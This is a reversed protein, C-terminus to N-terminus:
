HRRDENEEEDGEEAGKQKPLDKIWKNKKDIYFYKGEKSVISQGNNFEMAVDYQFPIIVRNDLNVFGWKTNKVAILGDSLYRIDDYTFPIIIKNVRNIFGYKFNLSVRAVSDRFDDAYDYKLPIIIHGQKDIYGNKKNITVRALGNFFMSADDYILPIVVVGKINIFGRKMNNDVILALGDKFDSGAYYIPAVIINGQVDKYGCKANQYFRILDQSFINTISITFLILLIIKKLINM